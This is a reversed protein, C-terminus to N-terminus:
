KLVNKNVLLIIIVKDFNNYGNRLDGGEHMMALNVDRFRQMFSETFLTLTKGNTLQLHQNKLHVKKCCKAVDSKFLM